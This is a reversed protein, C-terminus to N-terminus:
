IVAVGRTHILERTRIERWADVQGRRTGFPNSMVDQPLFYSDGGSTTKALDEQWYTVAGNGDACDCIPRALEAAALKAVIQKLWEPMEGDTTPYGAVYNARLKSPPYGVAWAAASWEAALSDYSAAEGAIWGARSERVQYRVTQTSNGAPDTSIVSDNCYCGDPITEWVLAGHDSPNARRRYVALSAAFNGATAADVTSVVMGNYRAPKVITWARGTITATGSAISVKVPRVRWKDSVSSGDWRDAPVFYVAIEDADTVTTAISVTFTDNVGDGDADTLTVNANGIHSLELAGLEQVHGYRTQVGIWKGQGDVAALHALRPDYHAPFPIDETIFEPAVPFGLVDKLSREAALIARIIEQRGVGDARQWSHEYIYSACRNDVPVSEHDLQWFHLPHISMLRRFEDLALHPAETLTIM